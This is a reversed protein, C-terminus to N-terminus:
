LNNTPINLDKSLQKVVTQCDDCYIKFIPNESYQGCRFCQVCILIKKNDGDYSIAYGHNYYEQCIKISMDTENRSSKVIDALRKIM